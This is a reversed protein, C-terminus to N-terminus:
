SNVDGCRIAPADCAFASRGCGRCAEAGENLFARGVPQAEETTVVGNDFTMQQQAVHRGAGSVDFGPQGGPLGDVSVM